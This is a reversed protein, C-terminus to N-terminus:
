TESKNPKFRYHGDEKYLISNSVEELTQQTKNSLISYDPISFNLNNCIDKLVDKLLNIEKNKNLIIIQDIKKNKEFFLFNNIKKKSIQSIDPTNKLSKKKKNTSIEEKKQIKTYNINLPFEIYFKGFEPFIIYRFFYEEWLRLKHFGFNPSIRKNFYNSKEDYFPNLFNYEKNENLNEANFPINKDDSNHVSELIDTWISVTMNKANNTKKKREM